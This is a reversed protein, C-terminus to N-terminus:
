STGEFEEFHGQRSMIPDLDFFNTVSFRRDFGFPALPKM